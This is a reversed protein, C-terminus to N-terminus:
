LALAAVPGSVQAVFDAATLVKVSSSYTYTRGLFDTHNIALPYVGATNLAISLIPTASVVQGSLSFSYTPTVKSMYGGRDIWASHLSLTQGVQIVTKGEFEAVKVAEPYLVHLGLQDMPSFGDTDYNGNVGCSTYKYHMVSLEDYDTIYATANGGYSAETCNLDADAREHEHRLGVAHGFEHLTHNLYPDSSWPDDGLKLNYQCARNVELDDPANSWSGWTDNKGNYNGNDDLFMPCGEGPVVGLADVNTSSLAVRIDGAFYDDGNAQTTPAACAGLYNFEINAYYTFNEIDGLVETVRDPRVTVADGAFCVSITSSRVGNNWYVSASAPEPMSLATVAMALALLWVRTAVVSTKM